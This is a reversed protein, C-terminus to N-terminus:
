SRPPPQALLERILSLIELPQFPKQLFVWGNNLLLASESYGSMLIVRIDPRACTLAAALEAGTMQPMQVDSLLLHIEGEHRAAIDLARKASDAELVRFGRDRLLSDLIQRIAAEDDVLLVTFPPVAPAV